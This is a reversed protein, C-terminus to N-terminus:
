VPVSWAGIKWDTRTPVAGEKVRRAIARIAKARRCARIRMNKSGGTHRPISQTAALPTTNVKSL